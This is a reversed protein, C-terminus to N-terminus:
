DSVTVKLPNLTISLREALDPDSGHADTSKVLVTLRGLIRDVRVAMADQIDVHLIPGANSESLDVIVMPAHTASFSLSLTFTGEVVEFASSSFFEKEENDQELPLVRFLEILETEDFKMKKM